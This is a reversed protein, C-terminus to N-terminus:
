RTRFIFGTGGGYDDFLGNYISLEAGTDGLDAKKMLAMGHEISSAKIWELSFTIISILIKISQKVPTLIGSHLPDGTPNGDQFLDNRIQQVGCFFLDM